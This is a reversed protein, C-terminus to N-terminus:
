IHSLFAFFFFVTYNLMDILCKIVKRYVYLYRWTPWTPGVSPRRKYSTLHVGPGTQIRLFSSFDGGRGCGPDFGPRGAKGSSGGPGSQEQVECKTLLTTENSKLNLIKM